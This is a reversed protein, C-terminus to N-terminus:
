KKKDKINETIAKKIEGKIEQEKEVNKKIERVKQEVGKEVHKKFLSAGIRTFIYLAMAVGFFSFFITFIKGWYTTPVLDGYGITTITVIVFYISDLVSWHEVYTYAYTGFLIVMLFLLLPWVLYNKREKM